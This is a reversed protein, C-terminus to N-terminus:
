TLRAGLIGMGLMGAEAEHSEKSPPASLVPVWVCSLPQACPKPCPPLKGWTEQGQQKQQVTKVEGCSGPGWWSQHQPPPPTSHGSCQSRTPM